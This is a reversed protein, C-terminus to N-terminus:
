WSLDSGDGRVFTAGGRHRSPANFLAIQAQRKRNLGYGLESGTQKTAANPPKCAVSAIRSACGFEM